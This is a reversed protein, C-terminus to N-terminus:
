LIAKESCEYIQATQDKITPCLFNKLFSSFLAKHLCTVGLVPFTSLGKPKNILASDSLMGKQTCSHM